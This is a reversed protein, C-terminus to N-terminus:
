KLTEEGPGALPRPTQAHSFYIQSVCEAVEELRDTIEDMLDRLGARVKAPSPHCAAGLDALRLRTRLELIIQRHPSRQPHSAERPLDALHQEIAAIQFAVARPNSEDAVLLDVVAPAELQTLYRRRYTLSSDAIELVADLLATEDPVVEVLTARVLRAVAIAREVRSGMDLFRWAQGRTMSEALVGDFALFGITLRNLLHVVGASQDDQLNADFDTLDREIGQLIRWADASVRDRLARVLGQVHGIAPRLGAYGAPNFVEHIMTATAGEDLRVRAHGLLASVLAPVMGPNEARVSDTLRGFLSRAVRVDAEGRQVYRGLWFLDDAVRSPLDGGGRSLEVPQSATTLLTSQGVPGDALVWTDKSGGGKQLSVVLSDASATVRTLGGPMVAYSGGDAALYARVVFRRAQMQDNLMVPATRSEVHEQAVFDAPRATIRAALQELQASSMEEGFDPDSGPTAFAPKIVLKSLNELVYRRADAEGCWWTQVSPLKLEEGLLRRCIAPLFGLFAPTQLVGTGLANAVAVNGERVAEVLGPVGLFSHQYLELPDCYDDDVRRLIVDVRQLGGLTKLYVRADRVTLDNGQVLTYGLYRALYAHEFYTENYPGPTLLVVRPNERNAPALAVLTQRLTIFFPALRQVNCQRFVSPLVGSLVIRNELSYGAGSPAQTRDSLVRFRGDRSRVLDAAYLHLWQGHPVGVGHCPRLFGPNSYILEPPLLGETLCRAPGYLDAVLADLLTARQVLAESVERWEAAPVLLPVLDLNWPRDLGNPDGYVNHTIGNERILRRAQEWRKPIEEPGLDDLLNVFMRWHPRLSGDPEIMEDRGNQRGPYAAAFGRPQALLNDTTQITM